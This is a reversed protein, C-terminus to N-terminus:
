DSVIDVTYNLTDIELVDNGRSYVDQNVPTAIFEIGATDLFSTVNISAIDLAGTTYNISGITTYNPTVNLPNNELMYLTSGNNTIGTVTDTISWEKGGSVFYSSTLYGPRIENNFRVKIAYATNLPPTITKVIQRTVENSLIYQDLSNLFAAFVSQRFVGEFKQLNSVNWADIGASVLAKIQPITRTSNRFNVHTTVALRLKLFDPDIMVPTIGLTNKDNIYQLISSKDSNSVPNGSTSSCVIFVRGYQVEGLVEEGGYVHADKVVPFRELIMTEYDSGVVAREQTQYHRPSMFRISELTEADSGGESAAAAAVSVPSLMQGGNLNGLDSDMVFSTMDNGDSGTCVRYTATITSGNPPLKGFIGNGFIIEYKEDATAQIFFITSDPGLSYLTSASTYETNSIGDSVQVTLSSTDISPNSLLFTQGEISNDVVFSENFYFGEYVKLGTISFYNNSSKYIYARDTVFKHNGSANLASFQTGKPVELTTIGSTPFSVDLEASASTASRPTYNLEKAHSVLSNRLQASDNWREGMAMNLYWANLWTNHALVALIASMNSGDFNYDKFRSQSQLFAKQASYIGDFDLSTLSLSSNAAM